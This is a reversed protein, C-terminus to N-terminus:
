TKPNKLMADGNLTIKKKVQNALAKASEKAATWWAPTDPRQDFICGMLRMIRPNNHYGNFFMECQFRLAEPHKIYNNAIM